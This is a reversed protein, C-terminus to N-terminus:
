DKYKPPRGAKEPQRKLIEKRNVFIRGAIEVTKIKERKLLNYIWQRSVGIEKAIQSPTALDEKAVDNGMCAYKGYIKVPTLLIIQLLKTFRNVVTL